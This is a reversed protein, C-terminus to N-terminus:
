SLCLSMCDNPVKASSHAASPLMRPVGMRWRAGDAAIGPVGPLAEGQPGGTRAEGRASEDNPAGSRAELMTLPVTTADSVRGAAAADSLRRPVAAGTPSVSGGGGGVAADEDAAPADFVFPLFLRRARCDGLSDPSSSASWSIRRGKAGASGTLCCTVCRPVGRANSANGGRRSVVTWWVDEGV